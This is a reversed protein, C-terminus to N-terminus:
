ILRPADPLENQDDTQRPFHQALLLGVREIVHLLGVSTNGKKLATILTQVDEEWEHPSVRANIGRDALLVVRHEQESLLILVGSRQETDVIGHEVMARFAREQVRRARVGAPVVLRLLPGWQSVFYLAIILVLQAVLLQTLHLRPFFWGLADSSGLAILLAFLGRFLSYDDCRRAILVVLEGSTKAEARAVAQSVQESQQETLLAM